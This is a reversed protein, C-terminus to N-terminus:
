NKSEVQGPAQSDCAPSPLAKPPTRSAAPSVFYPTMDTTTLVSERSGTALGM